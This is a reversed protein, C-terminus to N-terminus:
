LSTLRLWNAGNSQVMVTSFQNLTLTTPTATVNVFTQSSTTGVTVTGSGSNTIVYVRGAIGVATPLTQTHTGSTVEVTYDAATLTYLATKAVYAHRTAGGLNTEGSEVDLAYSNTLTMGSGAAPAGSISVTASRTATASGTSSALTPAQFFISRYNAITNNGNWTLTRGLNFNFESLSVGNTLGTSAAATFVAFTPMGTTHAAQTFALFNNTATQAVNGWIHTGNDQIQYLNTTASNQVRLTGVTATGNGTITLAANSTGTGGIHTRTSTPTTHALYMTTGSTNFAFDYHASEASNSMRMGPNGGLAGFLTAGLKAAATTYYEYKGVGLTTLSFLQSGNNSISQLTQSPNFGLTSTYGLTQGAMAITVNGTLTTTGTTQWGAAQTTWFPTTGDSSLFTGNSGLPLRAPTGLNDSSYVMDGTTTLPWPVEVALDWTSAGTRRALGTTSLGALATLDGDLTQKNALEDFVANSTPAKGTEGNTVADELGSLDWTNIGTKRLVGSGSQGAINTLDGDLPQFGPILNVNMKSKNISDLLSKMYAINYNGLGDIKGYIQLDTVQSYALSSVLSFLLITLLRKM